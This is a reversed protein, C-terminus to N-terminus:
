PEVLFRHAGTALFRFRMRGAFDAAASRVQDEIEAMHRQTGVSGSRASGTFWLTFPRDVPNSAGRRSDLLYEIVKKGPNEHRGSAGCFLYHDATITDCFHRDVNSVSGHHPMKLVDVHLHGGEVLRDNAVLGAIVDEGAGDGTLLAAKGDEEVLLMLSALNPITVRGRSATRATAAAFARALTQGDDLGLREQDEKAERRLEEVRSQNTNLWKNWDERLESLTEAFPGVVRIEMQAIRFVDPPDAIWMLGGDFEPNVPIKLQEPGARASLQLAETYGTVIKQLTEAAPLTQNRTGLVKTALVLLQAIQGTNDGAM